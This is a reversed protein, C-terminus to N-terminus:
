RGPVATITIPGEVEARYVEAWVLITWDWIAILGCLIAIQCCTLLAATYGPSVTSSRPAALAHLQM